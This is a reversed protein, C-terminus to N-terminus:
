SYSREMGDVARSTGALSVEIPCMFFLLLVCSEECRRLSSRSSVESCLPRVDAPLPEELCLESEPFLLLLLVLLVSVAGATGLRLAGAPFVCYASDMRIM